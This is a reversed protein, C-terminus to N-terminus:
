IVLLHSQKWTHLHTDIKGTQACPPNANVSRLVFGGKEGASASQQKGAHGKPVIAFRLLYKVQQHLQSSLMQVKRHLSHEQVQVPM